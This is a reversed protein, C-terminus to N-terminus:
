IRWNDFTVGDGELSEKYIRVLVQLDEKQKLINFIDKSHGNDPSMATITWALAGILEEKKM